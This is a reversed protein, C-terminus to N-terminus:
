DCYIRLSGDKPDIWKRWADAIDCLGTIDEMIRLREDPDEVPGDSLEESELRALIAAPTNVKLFGLFATGSSAYFVTLDSYENSTSMLSEEPNSGSRAEDFRACEAIRELLEAIGDYFHRSSYTLREGWTEIVPRICMSM